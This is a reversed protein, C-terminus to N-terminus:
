FNVQFMKATLLLKGQILPELSYFGDVFGVCLIKREEEKVEQILEKQAGREEDSRERNEFDTRSM